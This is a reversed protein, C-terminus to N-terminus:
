NEEYFYRIVSDSTIKIFGGDKLVHFKGSEIKRYIYMKPKDLIEALSAVPWWERTKVRDLKAELGSDMVISM